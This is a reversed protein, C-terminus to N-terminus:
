YRKDHNEDHRPLKAFMGTKNGGLEPMKYSLLSVRM